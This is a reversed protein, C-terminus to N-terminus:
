AGQTRRPGRHAPKDGIGTPPVKDWRACPQATTNWYFSHDNGHAYFDLAGLVGHGYGALTMAEAVTRGRVVNRYGDKWYLTFDAM